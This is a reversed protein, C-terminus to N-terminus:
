NSIIFLDKDELFNLKKRFANKGKKSVEVTTVNTIDTAQHLVKGSFDIVSSDGSYQLDSGDKGVRNVGVVYCQNEIARAALLTKWADSRPVPWNATYILLDYNEVNRAWVPFRLDYCILPCIKWGNWKVILKKTGAEYNKDEKALTFLHRKDYIKYTKNPFMWVLRNYYKGDEQAIFSGTVVANIKKAQKAFWKMTKGTMSEALPAPNMSFGTTFMEPLIVLDTKNKLGKLQKSFHSLNKDIDEWYITSQVTTVRLNSAM